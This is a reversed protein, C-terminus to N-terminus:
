TWINVAYFIGLFSISLRVTFYPYSESWIGFFVTLLIWSKPICQATVLFFHCNRILSVKHNWLKTFSVISFFKDFSNGGFIKKKEIRETQLCYTIAFTFGHRHKSFRRKIIIKCFEVPFLQYSYFTANREVIKM